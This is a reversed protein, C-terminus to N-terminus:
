DLARYYENLQRIINADDGNNDLRKCDMSPLEFSPRLAAASASSVFGKRAQLRQDIVADDALVYILELDPIHQLLFDRHRQKYVAQTVLLHTHQKQLALIKKVVIDFYSDRMADTFPRQEALALRMEETIDDDAHYVHWGTLRGLLDAVYSKGCGALGFFLLTSPPHYLHLTNDTM